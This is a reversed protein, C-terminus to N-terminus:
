ANVEPHAADYADEVEITMRGGKPNVQYGNLRAWERIGPRQLPQGSFSVAKGTAAKGTAAKSSKDDQPPPMLYVDVESGVPKATEGKRHKGIKCAKDAMEKMTKDFLEKNHATLDMIYDQGEWSFQVTFGEDPGIHTGDWDDEVHTTTVLKKAMM